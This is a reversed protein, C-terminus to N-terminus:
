RQDRRVCLTGNHGGFGFSNSIVARLNAEVSENPTYGLDCDPDPQAYNITPPVFGERMSLLSAILEVAGAAGMLHGFQSKNSSIFLDKAKAEGFVEKLAKTEMEDNLPTSTGHANVYDIEEPELDAEKIAEKMSSVAGEGSPDPATIHHADSSAGFGELKGYVRAGRRHAREIEELVVVGAGEAPLFGDRKGDFPRSAEKPRDNRGTTAQIKSFGSLILPTLVAETGGSLVLDAKGQKIMMSALGLAQTGSACAAVSVNSLGKFGFRISVVAGISNPMLQPAFFPSVRGAGKELFREYNEEFAEIGGIGTGIMVGMRKRDEGPVVYRDEEIKELKIGADDLALESAAISFQASRTLRKVKKKSMFKEPEFGLVPAGVKTKVGELDLPYRGKEDRVEDLRKGASEGGKLSDLLSKEGIGLPTVPGLGTIAVERNKM